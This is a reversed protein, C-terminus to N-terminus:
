QRAANQAVRIGSLGNRRPAGCARLRGCLDGIGVSTLAHKASKWGSMGARLAASKGASLRVRLSEMLAAQRMAANTEAAEGQLQSAERLEALKDM